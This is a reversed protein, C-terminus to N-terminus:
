TFERTEAGSEARDTYIVKLLKYLSITNLPIVPIVETANSVSQEPGPFSELNSISHYVTARTGASKFM